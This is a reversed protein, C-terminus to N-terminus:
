PRCAALVVHFAFHYVIGLAPIASLYVLKFAEQFSPDRALTEKATIEKPWNEQVVTEQVMPEQVMPEQVMPEQVMAEQVM